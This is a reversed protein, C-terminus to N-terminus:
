ISTIHGLLVAICLVDRGMGFERNLEDYGRRKRPNTTLNPKYLARRFCMKVIIM